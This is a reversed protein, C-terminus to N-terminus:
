LFLYAKPKFLSWFLTKHSVISVKGEHDISTENHLEKVTLGEKMELEDQLDQILNEMRKKTGKLAEIEKKNSLCCSLIGLTIGASFLCIRDRLGALLM